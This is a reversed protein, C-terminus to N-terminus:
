FQRCFTCAPNDCLLIRPDERMLEMGIRYFEKLDIMQIRNMGFPIEAIKLGARIAHTFFKCNEADDRYFDRHGPLHQEILVTRLSGDKEKVRCVAPQLFASCSVTELYHLFTSPGLGSGIYIVKGGRELAKGLPSNGSAPPDTPGHSSLCAEAQSGLGAWSHTVHRSRRAEPFQELLVRPVSGTWIQSFDSPDFPRYNWGRNLSTGLYIYPRTFTPFLIAGDPGVAESLTRILTKAGGAIYGCKSLSSHVLLIDGEKVGIERLADAFMFGTLETRSVAQLYGWDVLYNCADIYQKVAGESVEQQRDAEAELILRALDKKGDMGSLVSSFHGYIVGDPLPRRCAKPINVLDYPFGIEARAYIHSAAYDRWPSSISKIKLEPLIATKGTYFLTKYFWLLALATFDALIDPALFGDQTQASNHWLRCSKGQLSRDFEGHFWITPVGTSKDSLFMDDKCGPKDLICPLVSNLEANIDKLIDVGHFPIAAIPPILRCRRQQASPLSDLNAAGIVKGKFNAHFAAYGYHEMAFILRLSYEPTGLVMIQRAIEIGAIIGSSDDDLLPEFAHALLWVEEPRKGPILATAAPLEGEYRRGDCKIKAKLDGANVLQRIYDGMRRSVSFGIFDRDECQIHWHVGETCANVWQLADPYEYSGIAFDSIIGRGGLDLIPTLVHARPSTLPELMVLAGRPDEGALFQQESIVRVIEGGPKTATSGKILHFPHRAYDAAVTQTADCLTLCGVSADWALPMRKDEYVTCGDAPYTLREVNPLGIERMAACIWEVSAHYNRWTQGQEIRCLETIKEALTHGNILSRFQHYLSKM